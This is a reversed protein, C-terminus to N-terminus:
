MRMNMCHEQKPYHLHHDQITKLWLVYKEFNEFIKKTITTNSTRKYNTDIVYLMQSSAIYINVKQSIPIYSCSRHLFM